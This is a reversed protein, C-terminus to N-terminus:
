DDDEEEEEADDFMEDEEDDTDDLALLALAELEDAIRKKEKYAFMRQINYRLREQVEPPQDAMHVFTPKQPKDHRKARRAPVPRTAVPRTAM